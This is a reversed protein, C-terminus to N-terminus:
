KQAVVRVKGSRDLLQLRNGSLQFRHTAMLADMLHAEQVLAGECAQHGAKADVNLQQQRHDLRYRGSLFNCGTNGQIYQGQAVLRLYPKQSFFQAKQGEVELLQWHINQLGDHQHILQLPHEPTKNQTNFSQQTTQCASLIILSFGLSFGKVYFAVIKKRAHLIRLIASPFCIHDVM